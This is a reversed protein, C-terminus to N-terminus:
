KQGGPDPGPNRIQIRIWPGRQIRIRDLDPDVVSAFVMRM